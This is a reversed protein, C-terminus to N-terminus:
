GRSWWRRVRRWGRPWVPGAREAALEAELREIRALRERAARDLVHILQLREDAIAAMRSLADEISVPSGNEGRAFAHRDMVYFRRDPAVLSRDLVTAAVMHASARARPALAALSAPLDDRALFREIVEVHEVACEPDGAQATIQGPHNRWQGFLEPVYVFSGLLGMRLWFDFDPVHHFRPTWGGARRAAETRFTAGVGIDHEHHVLITEVTTPTGRHLRVRRGDLDVLELDGFAVVAEPHAQLAAVALSVAKPCLLDDDSLMIALEGQALTLGRNVTASQGVNEHRYGRVRPDAAVLADVAAPTGDTSGDDLVLVELNPHDQGLASHVADPLLAARNYTPVILSVLVDPADTPEM